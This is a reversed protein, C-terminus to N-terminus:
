CVESLHPYPDAAAGGGPHWEFHTHPSSANGSTGVYGVVDGTRVSGLSGLESMHMMITSGQSGNVTVYLGANVDSASTATGNFPAVIPTGYPAMIDNGLHPHTWGPHNHIMGFTDAFAHPGDVPCAYLPGPVGDGTGGSSPPVYALEQQLKKELRAVLDNAESQLSSLRDLRAQQAAFKAQLEDKRTQLQDVQTTQRALLTALEDQKISLKGLEVEIRTALDVQYQSLVEMYQLGDALDTLSDAGLYFSLETTPGNMYADRAYASLKERAADLKRQADTMQARTSAVDARTSELASDAIEIEAALANLEMQLSDLADRESDIEDRLSDLRDRADHLDGQTDARAVIGGALALIAVLIALAARRAADRPFAHM